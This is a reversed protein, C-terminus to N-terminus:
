TPIAGMSFRPVEVALVQDPHVFGLLKCETEGALDGVPSGLPIARVFHPTDIKEVLASLGPVGYMLVVWHQSDPLWLANSYSYAYRKNEIFQWHRTPAGNWSYATIDLPLIQF